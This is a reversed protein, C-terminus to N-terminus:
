RITRTYVQGKIHVTTVEPPCPDLLERKGVFQQCDHGYTGCTAVRSSLTGLAYRGCTIWSPNLVRDVHDILIRQVILHTLIREVGENEGCVCVLVCVCSLCVSVKLRCTGGCSAFSGRVYRGPFNKSERNSGTHKNNLWSILGDISLRKNM